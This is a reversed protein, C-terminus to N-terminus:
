ASRSSSGLSAPRALVRASMSRVSTSIPGISGSRRGVSCRIVRSMSRITASMWSSCSPWRISMRLTTSWISPGCVTRGVIPANWAASVGSRSSRSTARIWAYPGYMAAFM